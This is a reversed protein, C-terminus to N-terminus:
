FVHKYMARILNRLTASQGDGIVEFRRVLANMYEFDQQTLHFTIKYPFNKGTRRGM